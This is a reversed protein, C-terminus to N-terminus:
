TGRVKYLGCVRHLGYGIYDRYRTYGMNQVVREYWFRSRSFYCPSYFGGQSGLHSSRRSRAYNKRSAGAHRVDRRLRCFSILSM